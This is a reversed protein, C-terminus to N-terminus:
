VDMLVGAIGFDKGFQNWLGVVLEHRESPTM